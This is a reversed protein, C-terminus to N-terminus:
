PNRRGELVPYYVGMFSVDCRRERESQEAQLRQNLDPDTIVMVTPVKEM